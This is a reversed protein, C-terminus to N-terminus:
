KSFLYKLVAMLGFRAVRRGKPSSAAKTTWQWVKMLFWIAVIWNFWSVYDATAILM